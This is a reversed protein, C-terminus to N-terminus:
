KKEKLKLDCQSLAFLLSISISVSPSLCAPYLLKSLNIITIREFIADGSTNNFTEYSIEWKRYENEMNSDM